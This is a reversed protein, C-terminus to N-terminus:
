AHTKLEMEAEDISVNKVSLSETFPPLNQYVVPAPLFEDRM